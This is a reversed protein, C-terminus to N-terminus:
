AAQIIMPEPKHIHFGQVYDAGMERLMRVAADSDVHEAITKMGAARDVDIISKVITRHFADIELNRVFMGDIKLYDIPMDRLYGFSSMGSGFDDLAFSCGIERLLSMFRIAQSFNTVAATETIEFCIRTPDVSHKEFEDVIFRLFQEDGVSLGSLNITYRSVPDQRADILSLTHLMHEIVWRDIRPMLNYREAAPIFAGPAIMHGNGNDLRLLVEAMEEAGSLPAIRQQVLCMHDEDLASNIRPLWAMEGRTKRLQKDDERFLHVRNRGGDKAAFCAADAQQLARHATRTMPTIAAVGISSSITFSSTHWAFRLNAITNCVRRATTVAESSTVNCLLIAFEDGGLRGVIDGSQVVNRLQRAVQRLLEDGAQHGCSDNVVKFQDLDIYLLAHHRDTAEADDVLNSLCRDLETRNLLNTLPDFRAEEALSQQIQTARSNDKLVVIEERKGNNDRHAMRNLEVPLRRSGIIAIMAEGSEHEPLVMSSNKDSRDPALQLVSGMALGVLKEPPMKLMHSAARNAHIITGQQDLILVADSVLELGQEAVTSNM